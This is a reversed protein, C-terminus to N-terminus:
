IKLFCFLLIGKVLQNVTVLRKVAQATDVLDVQLVHVLLRSAHTVELVDLRPDVQLVEVAARLPVQETHRRALVELLVRAALLEVRVDGEVDRHAALREEVGDVEDDGGDGDGEEGHEDEVQRRVAALLDRQADVDEEGESDEEEEEGLNDRRRRQDNREDPLIEEERHYEDRERNDGGDDHQVHVEAAGGRVRHRRPHSFDEETDKRAKQEHASRVGVRAALLM